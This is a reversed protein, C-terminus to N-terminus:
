AELFLKPKAKEGNFKPQVKRVKARFTRRVLSFTKGENKPWSRDATVKTLKKQLKKNLGM